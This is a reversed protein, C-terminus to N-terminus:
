NRIWKKIYFKCYLIFSYVQAYRHFICVEAIFQLRKNFTSIDSFDGSLQIMRAAEAIDNLERKIAKHWHLIEDVPRDLTSNAPCYDTLLIERKGTNSYECACQGKDISCISTSAESDSPSKLESHDICSKRKKNIKEGDMWTFIIKMKLLSTM